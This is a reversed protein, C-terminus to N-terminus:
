SLPVTHPATTTPWTSTPSATTSPMAFDDEAGFNHWMGLSVKPLLVGSRGCREYQLVDYRNPAAVYNEM